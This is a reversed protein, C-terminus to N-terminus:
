AVGRWRRSAPTALLSAVARIVDGSRAPGWNRNKSTDSQDSDSSVVFHAWSLIVDIAAATAADALTHTDKEANASHFSRQEDHFQGAPHSQLPSGSLAAGSMQGGAERIM